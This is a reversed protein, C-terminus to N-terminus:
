PSYLIVVVIVVIVVIIIVVPEPPLPPNWSDAVVCEPVPSFSVRLMLTTPFFRFDYEFDAYLTVDSLM